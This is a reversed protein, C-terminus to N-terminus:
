LPARSDDAYVTLDQFGLDKLFAVIDDQTIRKQRLKALGAIEPMAFFVEWADDFIELRPANHYPSLDHWRIGFEGGTGGDPHYLGLMIEPQHSPQAYWARNLVYFGKVYPARNM